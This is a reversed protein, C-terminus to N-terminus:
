KAHAPEHRALQERVDDAWPSAPDLRLYQRWHRCAAVTQGMEQLVQALNYHADAYGPVLHVAHDIAHAAEHLRQQEALVNGLNNWAEAYAPDLQTAQTFHGCSGEIDGAAYLMNGLNFHLVPDSPDLQIAARYALVASDIQGVDELEIAEEFWSEVSRAPMQLTEADDAADFDLQLQGGPEALQGRQLRVLVRGSDELMALQSLPEDVDSVWRRLQELSNRIRKLSVGAALLECLSKARAVQQFDFYALRHVTEVPEILGARLWSRLQTARVELIRSLQAITYRQHPRPAAGEDILGALFTEEDVIRISYGAALLQRARRLSETPRGDEHLPWGMGGIVLFNTHRTPLSDVEGGLQQILEAIGRQTM